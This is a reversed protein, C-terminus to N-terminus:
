ADFWSVVLWADDIGNGDRIMESGCRTGGAQCIEGDRQMYDPTRDNCVRAVSDHYCELVQFPSGVPIMPMEDGTRYVAVRPGAHGAAGGSDIDAGCGMAVLMMLVRKM